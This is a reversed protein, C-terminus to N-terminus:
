FVYSHLKHSNQSKYEGHNLNVYQPDFLFYQLIAHGFLLPDTKYIESMTHHIKWRLSESRQLYVLSSCACHVSTKCSSLRSKTIMHDETGKERVSYYGCEAYNAVKRQVGKRMTDSEERLENKKM